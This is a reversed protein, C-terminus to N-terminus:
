AQLAVGIMFVKEDPAIENGIFYYEFRGIRIQKYLFAGKNSYKASESGKAESAPIKAKLEAYTGKTGQLLQRPANAGVTEVSVTADGLVVRKVAEISSAWYAKTVFPANPDNNELKQNYDQTRVYACDDVKLVGEMVQEVGEQIQSLPTWPKAKLLYDWIM